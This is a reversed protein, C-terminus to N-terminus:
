ETHKADNPHEQGGSGKVMGELVISAGVGCLEAFGLRVLSYLCIVLTATRPAPVM